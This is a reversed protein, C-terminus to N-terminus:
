PVRTGGYTTATTSPYKVRLTLRTRGHRARLPLQVFERLRRFFLPDVEICGHSFGKTSDHLYFGARKRNKPDDIHVITLRIRDPGWAENRYPQGNWQWSDPLHEIGERVDLKGPGTMTADAALILPFSYLGEPVPGEDPHSQQSADQHGPLGSTANFVGHGDWILMTGNYLLDAHAM